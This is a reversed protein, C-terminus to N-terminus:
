PKAEYAQRGIELLIVNEQKRCKPCIPRDSDCVCDECVAAGCIMCRNFTIMANQNAREYADDHEAEWIMKQATTFDDAREPADKVSFPIPETRFRVGCCDCFLSFQFQKVNSEDEIRKTVSPLRGEAMFEM